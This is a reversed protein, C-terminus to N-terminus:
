SLVRALWPASFEVAYGASRVAKIYADFLSVHPTAFPRNFGAAKGAWTVVYQRPASM